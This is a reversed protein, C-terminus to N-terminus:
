IPRHGAAGATRWLVYPRPRVGLHDQLHRTFGDRRKLMHDMARTAPSHRSLGAGETRMRDELGVLLPASQERRVALRREATEGNTGREIDFLTDIRTLAEM